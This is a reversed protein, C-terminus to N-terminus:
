LAHRQSTSLHMQQEAVHHPDHQKYLSGKINKSKYGLEEETEHENFSSVMQDQLTTQFLNSSFYNHPKFPVRLQDWVVMKPSNHIDVGLTQMLDMSIIHDYFSESNDMIIACIPGSIHTTPSFEPLIMDKILVEKDLFASATVGTVHRKQGLLPNVGLPLALCKMM